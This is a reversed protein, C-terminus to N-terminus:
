AVERMKLRAAAIAERLTLAGRAETFLERALASVLSANISTTSETPAMYIM